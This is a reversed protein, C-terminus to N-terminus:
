QVVVAFLCVQCCLARHGEPTWLWLTHHSSPYIRPTLAKQLLVCCINLYMRVYARWLVHACTQIAHLYNPNMM